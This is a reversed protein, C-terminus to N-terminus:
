LEFYKNSDMMNKFGYITEFIWPNNESDMYQKEEWPNKFGHTTKL